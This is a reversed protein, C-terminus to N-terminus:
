VVIKNIEVTFLSNIELLFRSCIKNSIKVKFHFKTKRIESLCLLYFYFICKKSKFSNIMELTNGM